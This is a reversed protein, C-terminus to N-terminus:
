EKGTQSHPADVAKSEPSGKQRLYITLFVISLVALFESQWNQFSEFWFRSGQLYTPLPEIFLNEKRQERCYESYSGYAHMIFSFLFLFTYAIILSNKYLNLWIGGKKVPWPAEPHPTPEKDESEKKDLAKSEASGQQRLHITFLVYVIMQFFESEWNEFTTSLFHGTSLYEWFSVSLSGTEELEKNYEHWGTFAQGFWMILFCSLLALSLSNRHIFHVRTKM